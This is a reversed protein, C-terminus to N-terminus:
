LPLKGKSTKKMYNLETAVFKIKEKLPKSVLKGVSELEIENDECYQVIADIYNMKTTLVLQEIDEAFKDKSIFKQNLAENIDNSEPM